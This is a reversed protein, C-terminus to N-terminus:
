LLTAKIQQLKERLLRVDKPDPQKGIDMGQIDKILSTVKKEMSLKGVVTDGLEKGESLLFPLLSLQNQDSLYTTLLTVELWEGLRYISDQGQMAFYAKAASSYELVITLLENESANNELASLFTKHSSILADHRSKEVAPTASNVLWLISDIRRTKVLVPFDSAMIGFKFADHYPEQNSSFALSSDLVPQIRSSLAQSHELLQTRSDAMIRSNDPTRDINFMVLAGVVLIIAAFAAANQWRLLNAPNFFRSLTERLSSSRSRSIDSDSVLQANPLIAARQEATNFVNALIQDRYPDRSSQYSKYLELIHSYDEEDDETGIAASQEEEETGRINSLIQFRTNIHDECRSLQYERYVKLVHNETKDNM